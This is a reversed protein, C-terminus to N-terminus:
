TMTFYIVGPSGAQVKERPSAPPIRAGRLGFARLCCTPCEDPRSESALSAGGIKATMGDTFRDM